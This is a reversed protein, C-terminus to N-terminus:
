SPAGKVVPRDVGAENGGNYVINYVSAHSATSYRSIDVVYASLM